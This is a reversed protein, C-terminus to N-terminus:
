GAWTGTVLWGVNAGACLRAGLAQRFSHLAQVQAAPDSGTLYGLRYTKRPPAHSRAQGPWRGCGALLGLGVAGAGQVVQRRSWCHPM